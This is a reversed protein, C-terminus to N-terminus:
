LCLALSNRKPFHLHALSSLRTISSSITGQLGSDVISMETLLSLSYISEPFTGILGSGASEISFYRLSPMTVFVDAISGTLNLLPPFKLGILAGNSYNVGIWNQPENLYHTGSGRVDLAKTFNWNTKKGDVPVTWHPGNLALWLTNLGDMTTSEDARRRPHTVSSLDQAAASITLLALAVGLLLLVLGFANM